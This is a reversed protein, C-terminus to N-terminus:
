VGGADPDDLVWRDGTREDTFDNGGMGYAQHGRYFEVAAALAEPLSVHPPMHEAADRCTAPGLLFLNDATYHKKLLAKVLPWYPGFSRYRSPDGQLLALVSAAMAAHDLPQAPADDDAQTDTPFPTM